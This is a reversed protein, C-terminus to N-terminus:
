VLDITLAKTQLTEFRARLDVLIAERRQRQAETEEVYDSSTTHLGAHEAEHKKAEWDPPLLAEADLTEVERLLQRLQAQIGDKDDVAVTAQTSGADRSRSRNSVAKARAYRGSSGKAAGVKGQATGLYADLALLEGRLQGRARGIATSANFGQDFGVQLTSLKGATIGERYGTQSSSCTPSPLTLM